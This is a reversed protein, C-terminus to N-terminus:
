HNKDKNKQSSVCYTFLALFQSKMKKNLFHAQLLIITKKKTM